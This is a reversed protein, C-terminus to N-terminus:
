PEWGGGLARYLQVYNQLETNWAQALALQSVFYQQQTVLVELFSTFGGRFRVDALRATEGYTATQEEIKLRNKRSQNYGVLNNSVDEMALLVTLQYSLEAQDRQAWALHYNSTIRGGEFLPQVAQGAISWFTAPGQLFSTLSTSQAGFSGTLSFQPFFAAKAFGVNANASVLLM